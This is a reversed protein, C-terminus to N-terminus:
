SLRILPHPTRETVGKGEGEGVGTPDNASGMILVATGVSYGRVLECLM